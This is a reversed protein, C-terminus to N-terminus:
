FTHSSEGTWERAKLPFTALRRHLPPRDPELGCKWRLHRPVSGGFMDRIIPMKSPGGIRFSKQIDDNKYDMKRSSRAAFLSRTM